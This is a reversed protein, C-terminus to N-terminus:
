NTALPMPTKPNLGFRFHFSISKTRRSSSRLILSMCLQFSKLDRMGNMEILSSLADGFFAVLAVLRFDKLDPFVCEFTANRGVTATLNGMHGINWDHRVIENLHSNPQVRQYNHNRNDAYNPYHHNHNANIILSSHSNIPRSSTPSTKGM